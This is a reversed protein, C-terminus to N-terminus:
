CTPRFSGQQIDGGRSPPGLIQPGPPEQHGAYWSGVVFIGADIPQDILSTALWLSNKEVPAPRM